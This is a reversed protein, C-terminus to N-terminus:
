FLMRLFTEAPAVSGRSKSAKVNRALQEDLEKLRSMFKTEYLVEAPTTNKQRSSNFHSYSNRSPDSDLRKANAALPFFDEGRPPLNKVAETRAAWFAPWDMIEDGSLSIHRCLPDLQIIKTQVAAWDMGGRKVKNRLSHLHKLVDLYGPDAELAKAHWDYAEDYRKQSERLQGMLYFAAPRVPPTAVLRTLVNEAASVSDPSDFAGMCGFCLSAVQGFQEPMREFAIEYHRRAEEHRGMARLREALRWQVCYADAFLTEAEAYRALSRQVLGLQQLDDGEEAVRVARVVDRFFKADEMKGMDALIDGLVAYARVRDGEPSEGDTPDVKLAHRIVQEAVDLKKMRRLAEAKWILPREEFADRGYFSDMQACFSELDEGAIKLLLEYAWDKSHNERMIETIFKEAEKLHGTEVLTEAVAARIGERSNDWSYGLESVDRARGWWPSEELVVLADAFRKQRVYFQLLMPSFYEDSSSDRRLSNVMWEVFLPEVEEVRGAKELAPILEKFRYYSGGRDKSWLQRAADLSANKIGVDEELAALSATELAYRFGDEWTKKSSSDVAEKVLAIRLALAEPVRDVALLLAVHQRQLARRKSASIGEEALRKLLLEEVADARDNAVAVAIFTSDAPYEPFREILRTYFDFLVKMSVGGRWASYTLIGDDDDDELANVNQALYPAVFDVAGDIKGDALRHAILQGLADRTHELKANYNRSSSKLSPLSFRNTFVNYLAEGETSATVLQWVPAPLEDGMELAVRQAMKLTGEGEIYRFPLKKQLVNRLLEEAEEAPLTEAINPLNNWENWEDRKASSELATRLKEVADLDEADQRNATAKLMTNFERLKSNDLVRKHSDLKEAFSKAADFDRELWAMLTQLLARRPSFKEEQRKELGARLHPWAAPPPFAKFLKEFPSNGSTRYTEYEGRQEVHWHGDDGMEFFLDAAKLWHEADAEPNKGAERAHSEQAAEFAKRAANNNTAPAVGKGGGVKQQEMIKQLVASAGMLGGDEEARTTELAAVAAAMAFGVMWKKM